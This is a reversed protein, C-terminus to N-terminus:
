NEIRERDAATEEGPARDPARFALAVTVSVAVVVLVIVITTTSM